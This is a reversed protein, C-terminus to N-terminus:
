ENVFVYIGRGLGDAFKLIELLDRVEDCYGGSNGTTKVLEAFDLSEFTQIFNKVDSNPWYGVAPNGWSSSPLHVPTQNAGFAFQWIAPFQEEDLYIEVTTKSPSFTECVKQFAYLLYGGEESEVCEYQGDVLRTLYTQEDSDIDSHAALITALAAQDSSSPVSALRQPEDTYVSIWNGV